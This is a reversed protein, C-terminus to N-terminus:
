HGIVKLLRMLDDETNFYHFSVRIGEGRQSCIIDQERLKNFLKQDGKINFIPAHNKRKLVMDALLGREAFAEFAQTKLLNIQEEIAPMGISKVLGIAATVSGHALTDQHGPEFKGIFTNEEQKYKGRVSNFGITKPFVRDQVAEKFMFFGNGYGANLWKYASAGLVDIGSADFDFTERGCYQTGDAVILLEPHANKLQKLFNLDIQIGSLYQVLSLALVDPKEKEVKATINEELNADIDAYVVEFDRSTVAWNISPYDDRLLLVKSTKPLGELLINFGFSFNPVLALQGPECNFFGSVGERVKTMFTDQKDKLLSGMILYDLDHEQRFDLVTESLLGSAATNLHIYQSTVPFEKKLNRM